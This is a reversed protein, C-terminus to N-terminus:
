DMAARLHPNCSNRRHSKTRLNLNNTIGRYRRKEGIIEHEYIVYEEKNEEIYNKLEEAEKKSM